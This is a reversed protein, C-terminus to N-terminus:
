IGHAPRKEVDVFTVKTWIPESTNHTKKALWQEVKNGYKHQFIPMATVQMDRCRSDPPSKNPIHRVAVKADIVLTNQAGYVGSFWEVQALGPSLHLFPFCKADTDLEKVLTM